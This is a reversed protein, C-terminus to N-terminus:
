CGGGPGFAFVVGACGWALGECLGVDVEALGVDGQALLGLGSNRACVWGRALARM